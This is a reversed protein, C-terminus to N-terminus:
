VVTSQFLIQQSHVSQKFRPTALMSECLIITYAYLIYLNLLPLIVNQTLFAEQCM